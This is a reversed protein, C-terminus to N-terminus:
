RGVQERLWKALLEDDTPMCCHSGHYVTVGDQRLSGPCTKPNRRRNGELRETDHHEPEVLETDPRLDGPHRRSM